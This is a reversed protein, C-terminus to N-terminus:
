GGLDIKVEPVGCLDKQSQVISADTIPVSTKFQNIYADAQRHLCDTIADYVDNTAAGNLLRTEAEQACLYCDEDYKHTDIWEQLSKEDLGKLKNKFDDQINDIQERLRDRDDKIKNLFEEKKDILQQTLRKGANKVEKLACLGKTYDQTVLQLKNLSDFSSIGKGLNGVFTTTKNLVDQANKFTPLSTAVQGSKILDSGSDIINNWGVSNLARDPLSQGLKVAENFASEGIKVVDDLLSPDKIVTEFASSSTFTTGSLVSKYADVEAGVSKLSAVRDGAPLQANAFPQNVDFSVDKVADAANDAASATTTPPEPSDSTAGAVPVNVLNITAGSVTNLGGAGFTAAGTGTCTLTGLASVETLFGGVTTYASLGGLSSTVTGSVSASLTASATFNSQASFTVSQKSIGTFDKDSVFTVKGKVIYTLDGDIFYISNGKIYNIDDGLINRTHNKMVKQQVSGDPRMELNSGKKHYLHVREFNPTDDLELAQGGETEIVKNYPYKANYSPDQEFVTKDEKLQEIQEPTFETDGRALRSTTPEDKKRPYPSKTEGRKVPAAFLQPATRRDTFGVNRPSDYLPIGPIVGMMIPHQANEGDLFFGVVTDAEKPSYANADNLPLMAQAWPLDKTPLENISETHWGFIRVKCRGLKLPDNRDEVVGVWWVFGNLGAFNKDM